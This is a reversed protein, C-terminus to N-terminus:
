DVVSENGVLDTLIKGLKTGFTFYDKNEFGSVM